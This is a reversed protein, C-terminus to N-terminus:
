SVNNKEKSSEKAQSNYHRLWCEYSGETKGGVDRSVINKSAKKLMVWGLSVSTVICSACIRQPAMTQVSAQKKHTKQKASVSEKEDWGGWDNM